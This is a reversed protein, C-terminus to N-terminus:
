SIYAAVGSLSRPREVQPLQRCGARLRHDRPGLLPEIRALVIPALPFGNWWRGALLFSIRREVFPDRVGPKRDARLRCRGPFLPALTQEAPFELTPPPRIRDSIEDEAVRRRVSIRSPKSLAM